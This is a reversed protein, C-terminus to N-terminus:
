QAEKLELLVRSYAMRAPNNTGDYRVANEWAAMAGKLEGQSYLQLGKSYLERSRVADVTVEEVSRGEVPSASATAAPDVPIATQRALESMAESMLDSAQTNNPDLRQAQTLYRMAGLNDGTEMKKRAIKIAREVPEALRMKADELFTAAEIHNPDIHLVRDCSAIAAKYDGKDYSARVATMEEKIIRRTQEETMLQRARDLHRALVEDTPRILLAESLPPVSKEYEGKLYYSYGQATYLDSPNTFGREKIVLETERLLSQLLEPKMTETSNVQSSLAALCSVARKQWRVSAGQETILPGFRVHLGIRHSAGLDKEGAAADNFGFAYDVMWDNMKFGMGATVETETLGARLALIKNVEYESGLKIKISRHETKELDSVILWRPKARYATGLRLTRPYTERTSKLRFQPAVLNAMSFGAQLNKRVDYLASADVGYGNSSYTDMSQRIFKLSGGLAWKSRLRIGHSYLLALDSQNFSGVVEGNSSTKEFDGSQLNLVSLGITGLELTPQAYSIFGFSTQMPLSSYLSVVDKRQLQALGAANWIGASADDALGVNARGLALTRASAAFDFMGGAQGGDERAYGLDFAQVPCKITSLLFAIVGFGFIIRGM